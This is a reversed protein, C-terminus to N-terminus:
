KQHLAERQICALVEGSVHTPEAALNLLVSGRLPPTTFDREVETSWEAIALCQNLMADGSPIKADCSLVGRSDIMDAHVTRLAHLM